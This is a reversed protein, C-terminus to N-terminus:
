VEYGLRRAIQHALQAAPARLAGEPEIRGGNAFAAATFPFRALVTTHLHRALDDVPQSPPQHADAFLPEQAGCHGCQYYAMNEVIGLLPVQLQEQLLHLGRRTDAVALPHATTVALAGSLRAQQALALLIDGTGPPTDVVLVDLPAWRVDFLMQHITRAAIPGRFAFSQEPSRAVHGLSFLRVGSSTLLPQLTASSNPSSPSNVPPLLLHLSPGHLDADLLGTALGVHQQLATALLAAIFSKGM